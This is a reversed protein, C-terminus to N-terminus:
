IEAEWMLWEVFKALALHPNSNSHPLFTECSLWGGRWRLPSAPVFPGSIAALTTARVSLRTWGPPLRRRHDRNGGPGLEYFQPPLHRQHTDTWDGACHPYERVRAHFLAQAAIEGAAVRDLLGEDVEWDCMWSTFPPSLSLGYNCVRRLDDLARKANELAAKDLYQLMCTSRLKPAYAAYAHAVLLLADRWDTRRARAAGHSRASAVAM